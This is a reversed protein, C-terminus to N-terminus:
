AAGGRKLADKIEDIGAVVNKMTVDQVEMHTTGTALRAEIKREWEIREKERAECKIEHEAIKAANVKIADSNAEQAKMAKGGQWVLVSFGAVLTILVGVMEWSIVVLNASDAETM